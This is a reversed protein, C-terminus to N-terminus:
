NTRLNFRLLLSEIPQLSLDKSSWDMHIPKGYSFTVSRDGGGRIVNSYNISLTGMPVPPLHNELEDSM